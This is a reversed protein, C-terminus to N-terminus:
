SKFGVYVTSSFTILAGLIRFFIPESYFQENKPIVIAINSKERNSGMYNDSEDKRYCFNNSEVKTNTKYINFLITKQFRKKKKKEIENQSIYKVIFIM